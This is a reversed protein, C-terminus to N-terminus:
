KLHHPVGHLIFKYALVLVELPQYRATVRSRSNRHFEGNLVNQIVAGADCLGVLSQSLSFSTLMGKLGGFVVYFTFCTSRAALSWGRNSIDSLQLFRSCSPNRQGAPPTRLSKDWWSFGEASQLSLAPCGQSGGAQTATVTSLPHHSSDASVHALPECIMSSHVSYLVTQGRTEGTHM